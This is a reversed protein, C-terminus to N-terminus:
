LGFPRGVEPVSTESEAFGVCARAVIQDEKNM